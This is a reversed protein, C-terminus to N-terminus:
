PDQGFEAQAVPDLCDDQGVAGSQDGAGGSLGAGVRRSGPREQARCSRPGAAFGAHLGDPRCMSVAHTLWHRWTVSGSTRGGDAPIGNGCARRGTVRVFQGAPGGHRERHRGDDAGGGKDQCRTQDSSKSPAAPM